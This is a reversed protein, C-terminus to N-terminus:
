AELPAASGVRTAANSSRIAGAVGVGTLGGGILHHLSVGEGLTVWAVVTALFPTSLRLVPPLNVPLRDLPWTMLFHGIAGSGVALGLALLVDRGTPVPLPAGTVLFFVIICASSITTVMALFSWTDSTPRAARSALFFVAFSIVAWLALLSGLVEGGRAATGAVAVVAAGGMALISWGIFGLPPREGFMLFALVMVILPSLADLLAADAVSTLKVATMFSLHHSAFAVSAVVTWLPSVSRLTVRPELGALRRRLKISGVILFMLPMGIAFRLLVFGPGDVSSAAIFSPGIAYMLVGGAIVVEPHRAGFERIM